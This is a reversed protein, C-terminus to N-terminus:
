HRRGTNQDIIDSIFPIRSYIGMFSTIALYFIIGYVVIQIISYAFFIPANFFFTIQAVLKNIFPIYSLLGLIFGCIYNLLFFAISIFISQFIHYQTFPRLQARTFLGLLMYIFGVFGMTIYSLSSVIREIMFPKNM